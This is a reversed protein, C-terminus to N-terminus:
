EEAKEAPEGLPILQVTRFHVEGGESQLGIRGAVQDVGTAENVKKGNVIARVTDGRVIIVYKNWEGPENENGEIKRVGTMPGTLPSGDTEFWRDKDGDVKFGQFGYIAGADGAKLQAEFCKPLMMPDGTIRMLVGSNGPKEGPAWRWEVVLVFNEYEAETCLYGMPSGQCILLGDRVSWVDEMKANPDLKKDDDVLVCGWGDLNEGNFLKIPDAAQYRHQHGEGHSHEQEEAAQGVGALCIAALFAAPLFLNRYM